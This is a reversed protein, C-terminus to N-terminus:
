LHSKPHRALLALPIRDGLLFLQSDQKCGGTYMWIGHYLTLLLLGLVRLLHDGDTQPIKTVLSPRNCVPSWIKDTLSTRTSEMADWCFARSSSCCGSQKTRRSVVRPLRDLSVDVADVVCTVQKLHWSRCTSSSGAIRAVQIPVLNTNVCRPSRIYNIIVVSLLSGRRKINDWKM